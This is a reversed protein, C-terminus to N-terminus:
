ESFSRVYSDHVRASGRASVVLTSKSVKTNSRRAPAYVGFQLGLGLSLNWRRVDYLHGQQFTRM